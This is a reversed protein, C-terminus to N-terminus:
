LKYPVNGLSVGASYLKGRVLCQSISDAVVIDAMQPIEPDLENKEQTDSGMATIHTGKQIQSSFLLPSTAPTATVILNCSSAVDDSDLTTQISYGLPEMDAKYKDLSRQNIDHVVVDRCSVILKLYELQIRGQIGAGCIGIRHVNKPALYKAVVAGAVATRVDTLYAEDM